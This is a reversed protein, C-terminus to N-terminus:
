GWGAGGGEKTRDDAGGRGRGRWGKRAGVGGGRLGRRGGVLGGDVRRQRGTAQRAPTDGRRPRGGGHAATGGRARGGANGDGPRVRAVGDVTRRPVRRPAAAAAAAARGRRYSWTRSTCASSGPSAAALPAATHISAASTPRSGCGGTRGDPATPASRRSRCRPPPPRLPRTRPGAGFGQVLAGREGPRRRPPQGALVRQPRKRTWLAEGHAKPGPAAPGGRALRWRRSRAASAPALTPGQGLRRGCGSRGVGPAM